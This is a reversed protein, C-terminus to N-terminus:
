LTGRQGMVNREICNKPVRSRPASVGASLSQSYSTTLDSCLPKLFASITLVDRLWHCTQSEKSRAIPIPRSVEPRDPCRHTLGQAFCVLVFSVISKTDLKRGSCQGDIRRRHQLSEVVVALLPVEDALLLILARLLLPGREHQGLPEEVRTVADPQGRRKSARPLWQPVQAAKNATV